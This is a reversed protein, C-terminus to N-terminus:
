ELNVSKMVNVINSTGKIVLKYVKSIIYIKNKNGIIVLNDVQENVQITNENGNLTVSSSQFYITNKVKQYITVIENNYYGEM